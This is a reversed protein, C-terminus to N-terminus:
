PRASFGNGHAAGTRQQVGALVCVSALFIFFLFLLFGQVLLQMGCTIKLETSMSAIFVLNFNFICLTSFLDVAGGM